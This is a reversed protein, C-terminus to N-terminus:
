DRRLVGAQTGTTPERDDEGDGTRGSDGVRGDDTREGDPDDADEDPATARFATKA